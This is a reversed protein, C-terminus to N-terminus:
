SALTISPGMTTSISMSLVYVGKVSAPRSSRVQSIVADANSILKQTGFSRKGIPMHVIGYSDVRYEVKGAKAETVAQAVDNTVTGSKPNPMLGRPGLTKAFKGLKPMSQPTAILVDFGINEKELEELLVTADTIDAGAAKAKKSGEDDALVAIKLTKGSGAPLVVSGRINQDAQKPDVSLNVHLELTEDFKAPSTKLALELAESLEYSKSSDIQEAAARYRRGARELKSKPPKPKAAASVAKADPASKKREQKTKEAEAEAVSKASRKGAKAVTKAAEKPASDM